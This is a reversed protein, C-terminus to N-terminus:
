LNVYKLFDGPCVSPVQDLDLLRSVNLIIVQIFDGQLSIGKSTHSIINSFGDKHMQIPFINSNTFKIWLSQENQLISAPVASGNEVQYENEIQFIRRCDPNSWNKPDSLFFRLKKTNKAAHESNFSSYHRYEISDIEPSKNLIHM